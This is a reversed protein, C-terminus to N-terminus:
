AKPRKTNWNGISLLAGALISVGWAINPLGYVFLFIAAPDRGLFLEGLILVLPILGICTGVLFMGFLVVPDRTQFFKGTFLSRIMSGQIRAYEAQTELYGLGSRSRAVRYGPSGPVYGASEDNEFIEIVPSLRPNRIQLKPRKHKIIRRFSRNM